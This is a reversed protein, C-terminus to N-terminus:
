LTAPSNRAGLTPDNLGGGIMSGACQETRTKVGVLESRPTVESIQSGSGASQFPLSSPVPIRMYVERKEAKRKPRPPGDVTRLPGKGVKQRTHAGVRQFAHPLLYPAPANMTLRRSCEVFQRLLVIGLYSAPPIVEPCEITRRHVLEKLVKILLKHLPGSALVFCQRM